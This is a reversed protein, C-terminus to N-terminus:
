RADQRIKIYHSIMRQIVKPNLPGIPSEIELLRKPIREKSLEFGERQKFHQLRLSIERGMRMLENETHEIDVAALAKVILEKSYVERSFYCGVLSNFVNLWDEEHVLFEVIEEPAINKISAVQDISYGANSLHSHRAGVLTGIVHGYGTFYGALSNKGLSIAYDKGGYREAAAAVGRAMAAYCENRLDVINEIMELYTDVNGWEPRLGMTEDAAILGNEYAETAWALVAGTMIADLGLRECRGILRLVETPNSVDLNIGLAFIPQYNYSVLEGEPSVSGQKHEHHSPNASDLAGLHICAVSCGPCSAKRKLVVRAFNEGSVDDARDYTSSSFNKSPLAGLENLALVNAATGLEGYKKMVEAEVILRNIEDRVGNFEPAEDLPVRDAGCVCVAKLKKSGMVAGIGLRGFHGHHDVIASAYNVCNEGARGISMVSKAPARVSPKILGEVEAPCRGWLSSANEIHSDGSEVILRVPEDSAGKIVIAGYESFRLATSFNGGAYSEGLNGTLPSKFMAVAKAMSPFIGVLPGTAFILPAKASLPDIDHPCEELLIQSAVGVGGLCKRFLEPRSAISTTEETLDVYLVRALSRNM